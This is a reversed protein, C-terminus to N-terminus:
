GGLINMVRATVNQLEEEPTPTGLGGNGDNETQLLKAVLPHADGVTQIAKIYATLAADSSGNSAFDAANAIHERVTRLSAAALPTKAEAFGGVVAFSAAVASLRTAAESFNEGRLLKKIRPATLWMKREAKHLEDKAHM